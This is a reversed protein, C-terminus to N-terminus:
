RDLSTLVRACRECLTPHESNTGVTQRLNWCRECKAHRSRHARAFLTSEGPTERLTLESVMCLNALLELEPRLRAADV